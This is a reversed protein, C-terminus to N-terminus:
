QAVELALRALERGEALLAEVVAVAKEFDDDNNENYWEENLSDVAPSLDLLIKAMKATLETEKM